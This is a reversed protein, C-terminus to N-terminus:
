RDRIVDFRTIFRDSEEGSRRGHESDSLKGILKVDESLSRRYVLLVRRGADLPRKSILTLWPNEDYEAVTIDQHDWIPDNLYSVAGSFLTSRGRRDVQIDLGLKSCMADARRLTEETFPNFPDKEEGV